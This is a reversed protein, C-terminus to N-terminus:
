APLSLLFDELPMERRPRPPAGAVAGAYLYAIIEDDPELGLAQHVRTDRAAAGTKWQCGWGQAHMALMISFAASAVAQRQEDAPIKPHDPQLRAVVTIILPARLPKAREKELLSEPAEPDRAALAEAMAEGLQERQQGELLLFRWPRLRGHDPACLATELAQRVVERPPADPGLALPSRRTTLAELTNM